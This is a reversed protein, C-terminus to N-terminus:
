VHKSRLKLNVTLKLWNPKLLLWRLHKISISTRLFKVFNTPFCRHWLRKKLLSVRACTSGSFETFIKLIGKKWFVEPRSSRHISSSSIARQELINIFLLTPRQINFFNLSSLTTTILLKVWEHSQDRETGGSVDSFGQNESIKLIANM